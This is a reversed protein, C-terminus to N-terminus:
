VQLCENGNQKIIINKRLCHNGMLKKYEQQLVEFKMKLKDFDDLKNDDQIDCKNIKSYEPPPGDDQVKSDGSEEDIRVEVREYDEESPKLFVAKSSVQSFEDGSLGADKQFANCTEYFRQNKM